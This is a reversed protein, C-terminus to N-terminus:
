IQSVRYYKSGIDKIKVVQTSKPGGLKINPEPISSNTDLTYQNNGWSLGTNQEQLM